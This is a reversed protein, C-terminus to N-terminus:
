RIKRLFPVVTRLFANKSPAASLPDIHAYSAHRDVLTLSRAPVRSQRALARVGKLVRGEGLSTEFAYMPVRVSRGHVSRDGLVKQAPAPNGNNLAQADLSLRRPHYWATGDIGRVGSFMRAARAVDTLEGDVWDRPDGETALHGLHMQVLRLNAPGTETDLAYGYGGRNTSPVPPRLSEPLLKFDELVSPATPELRAATSAVINFVGASWPLGLGTLDLFPSSEALDDLSKRAAAASVAQGRVGSSGDIYVLGALDRAGPRGRFDWTAYATTMSGGLSHGGLVVTRGGRRAAAVVRHLDEMAVNMGWKRAFGADSDPVPVFHDPPADSNGIWGLYYEYLQQITADGALARDLVSHDELLNERREVSWVQWGRLRKVLDAGLPQFYAAGGATGPQLVLVHKARTPGQQIVRVKDYRAPGPADFGKLTVVRDKAAAPAALGMAAVAAAALLRLPPCSMSRRM